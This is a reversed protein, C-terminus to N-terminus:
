DRFCAASAGNRAATLATRGRRCGRGRGATTVCRALAAFRRCPAVSPSRALDGFAPFAASGCTGSPIVHWRGRLAVRVAAAAGCAFMPLCETRYDAFGSALESLAGTFRGDNGATLGGDDMLDLAAFTPVDLDLDIEIPPVTPLPDGVAAGRLEV